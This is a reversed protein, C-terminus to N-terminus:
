ALSDLLARRLMEAEYPKAIFNVHLAGLREPSLAYGSALLVPLDTRRKAIEKALEIGDMSGPM